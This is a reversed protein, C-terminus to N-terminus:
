VIKKTINQKLFLQQNRLISHLYRNSEKMAKVMQKTVKEVSHMKHMLHSMIDSESSMKEIESSKEEFSETVTSM